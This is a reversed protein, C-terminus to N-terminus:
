HSELVRACGVGQSRTDADVFLMPSANSVRALQAERILNSPPQQYATTAMIITSREVEDIPNVNDHILTEIVTKDFCHTAAYVIHLSAHDIPVAGSKTLADLLDFAAVKMRKQADIGLTSDIPRALIGRQSRMTWTDSPSIITPRLASDSDLAEFRQDMTRPLNIYDCGFAENDCEPSRTTTQAQQLQQHHQHQQHQQKQLADHPLLGPARNISIRRGEDELLVTSQM